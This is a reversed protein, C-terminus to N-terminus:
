ETKAGDGDHHDHAGHHRAGSGHAGHGHAGHGQSTEGDGALGEAIVVIEVEGTTEFTLTMDFLDGEALPRTPEFLMIHLGGPELKAEGNAPVDIAEVQRMRMVGDVMAHTHLEIRGFADSRAAVLRDPADAANRIVAYGASPRGAINIRAWPHDVTIDGKKVDHAASPAALALAFLPATALAALLARRSLPHSIM